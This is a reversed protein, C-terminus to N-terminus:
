VNLKPADLDPNNKKVQDITRNVHRIINKALPISM